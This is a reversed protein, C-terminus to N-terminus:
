QLIEDATGGELETRARCRVIGEAAKQVLVAMRCFARFRKGCHGVLLMQIMEYEVTDLVIKPLDYVIKAPTSRTQDDMGAVQRFPSLGRWLM